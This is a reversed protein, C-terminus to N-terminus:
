RVIERFIRELRDLHGAMAHDREIRARAARGLGAALKDDGLLREVAAQLAYPDGPPVLLGDVGDDIMETLSGIRSAVVPRGHAQAELVVNPANEEWRSPVVVCRAARYAATLDGGSLHGAFTVHSPASARLARGEPTETDGALVLNWAAKRAADIAVSVGKPPYFGGVYLVTTGPPSPTGSLLDDAVPTSLHVLREDPFGNERLRSLLHLSPCVIRVAAGDARRFRAYTMAAVRAGTVALSDKLCRHRLANGLGGDCLRCPAGARFSNYAPCILQYDSQRWLVPIDEDRAAFLLDPYLYHAIQLAYVADIREARLVRRAARYVATDRVVKWALLAREGLGLDRDDFRVFDSGAPPPPFYHAYPSDINREYALAFPIVTHGREELVPAVNFLYREPGGSLFYRNSALLLRM